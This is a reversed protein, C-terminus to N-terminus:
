LAKAQGNWVKNNQIEVQRIVVDKLGDKQFSVYKVSLHGLAMVYGEEPWFRDAKLQFFFLFSPNVKRPLPPEIRQRMVVVDYKERHFTSTGPQASLCPVKKCNLLEKSWPRWFRFESFEVNQMETADQIWPLKKM